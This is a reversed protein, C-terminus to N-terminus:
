FGRSLKNIYPYSPGVGLTESELIQLQHNELALSWLKLVVSRMLFFVDVDTCSAM